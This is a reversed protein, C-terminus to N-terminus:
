TKAITKAVARSSIMQQRKTRVWSIYNKWDRHSYVWPACSYEKSESIVQETLGSVAIAQEKIKEIEQWVLDQKNFKHDCSNYEWCCSLKYIAIATEQPYRSNLVGMIPRYKASNPLKNNEGYRYNVSELNEQYFQQFWSQPSNLGLFGQDIAWTMIASIHFSGVTFSSM